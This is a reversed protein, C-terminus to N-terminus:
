DIFSKGRSRKNAEPIPSADAPRKPPRGHSVEERKMPNKVSHTKYWHSYGSTGIARSKYSDHCLRLVPFKSEMDQYFQLQSKMSVRTWTSGPNGESEEYLLCWLLRSHDRIRRAVYGDVMTGSEDEIFWMAVNEGESSRGKGRPGPQHSTSGERLNKEKLYEDQYWYTINPYDKREMSPRLARLPAEPPASGQPQANQNSRVFGGERLAEM